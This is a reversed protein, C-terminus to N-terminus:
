GIDFGGLYNTQRVFRRYFLSVALCILLLVVAVASGYGIAFREFSFRYLYTAMTESANVPGGRTMIWVMGFQQLSGLISLYVSTKITTGLLPLTVFFLIQLGNAGDILAAEELERPIDQLGALYLLMHFGFFKWTLAVFICGMVIQPDGLFAQVELGPIFTIIYNIFGRQADPKFLNYWVVGAIVESLVYPLFFVTRFFVRGPLDRGVLLALLMSLPLQIALSFVIIFIGNRFAIGFVRDSLINKYNELGVFDVAPGFGKWNFLSYYVSQGIPYVLFILFLLVSPLLFIIVTWNLKTSRPMDAFGPEIQQFNEEDMPALKM